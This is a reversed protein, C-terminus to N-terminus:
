QRLWWEATSRVEVDPDSQAWARLFKARVDSDPGVVAAILDVASRRVSPSADSAAAVYLWLGERILRTCEDSAKSGSRASESPHTEAGHMEIMLDLLRVRAETAIDGTLLVLIAPILAAASDFVEGQVVVNNDLKWYAEAAATEDTAAALELLADPVSTADGGDVHLSAWDVDALLETVLHSTPMVSPRGM